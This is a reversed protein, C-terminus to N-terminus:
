LPLHEGREEDPAAVFRQEVGSTDYAATARGEVVTNKSEIRGGAQCQEAATQGAEPSSAAVSSGQKRSRALAVPRPKRSYAFPPCPSPPEIRGFLSAAAPGDAVVLLSLLSPPERDGPAEAERSRWRLLRRESLRDETM